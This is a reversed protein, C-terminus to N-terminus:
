HAAVRVFRRGGIAAHAAQLLRRPNSGKEILGRAGAALLADAFGPGGHMSLAIVALDARAAILRRLDDFSRGRDTGVDLLVLDTCDLGGRGVAHAASRATRLVTLAPDRGVVSRLGERLLPHACVLLVGARAPPGNPSPPPADDRFADRRFPAPM